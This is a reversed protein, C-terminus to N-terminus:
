SGCGGGSGCGGSGCGGGTDPATVLGEADIPQVEIIGLGAAAAQLALRTCDPGRENLVYLILRSRDLTWEMDVLQLDLEWDGIRGCWADFAADCDQQAAAAAALDDDTAVRLVDPREGDPDAAASAQELFVGVQLGRHSQVVVRDGRSLPLEAACAFRAVEPIRGYRVLVTLTEAKSILRGAGKDAGSIRTRRHRHRIWYQVAM